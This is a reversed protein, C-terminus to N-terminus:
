VWSPPLNKADPSILFFRLPWGGDLGWIPSGLARWFAKRFRFPMEWVTAAKRATSLESRRTEGAETESGARVMNKAKGVQRPLPLSCPKCICIYIYGFLYYKTSLLCCIPMVGSFPSSWEKTDNNLPQQITNTTNM